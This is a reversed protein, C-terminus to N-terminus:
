QVGELPPLTSSISGDALVFAAPNLAPCPEGLDIPTSESINYIYYIIYLIYLIYIYYIIYLIYLIYIYYIYYIIYIYYIYYTYLIYIYINGHYIELRDGYKEIIEVGGKHGGFTRLSASCSAKWLALAQCSRHYGSKPRSRHHLWSKQDGM